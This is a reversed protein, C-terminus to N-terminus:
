TFTKLWNYYDPWWNRQSITNRARFQLAEYYATRTNRSNSNLWETADKYNKFWVLQERTLPSTVTEVVNEVSERLDAAGERREPQPQVIDIAPGTRGGGTSPRFPQTTDKDGAAFDFGSLGGSQTTGGTGFLNDVAALIDDTIQRAFSAIKPYIVDYGIRVGAGYGAGFGFGTPFSAAAAALAAIGVPTVM